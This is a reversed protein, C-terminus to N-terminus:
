WKSEFRCYCPVHKWADVRQLKLFSSIVSPHSSCVLEVLDATSADGQVIRMDFRYEERKRAQEAAAEHMDDDGISLNVQSRQQMAVITFHIGDSTALTGETEVCSSVVLAEAAWRVRAVGGFLCELQVLFRDDVDDPDPDDTLLLEFKGAVVSSQIM